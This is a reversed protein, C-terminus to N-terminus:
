ISSPCIKPLNFFEKFFYCPVYRLYFLSPPYRPEPKSALNAPRKGNRGLWFKEVIEKASRCNRAETESFSNRASTAINKWRRCAGKKREGRNWGGEQGKKIADLRREGDLTGRSCRIREVMDEGREVREVGKKSKNNEEKRRGSGARCHCESGKERAEGM